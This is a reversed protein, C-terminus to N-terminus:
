IFEIGLNEIHKLCQQYFDKSFSELESYNSILQKYDNNSHEIDIKTGIVNEKKYNTLNKEVYNPIEDYSLKTYKLNKAILYKELFNSLAVEFIYFKIRPSDYDIDLVQLGRKYYKEVMEKGTNGNIATFIFNGTQMAYEMSALTETIDRYIYYYDTYEHLRLIESVNTIVTPRYTSLNDIYRSATDARHKNVVWDENSDYKTILSRSFLKIVYSVDEKFIRKTTNTLNEVFIKNIVHNKNAKERHVRLLQNPTFFSYNKVDYIEFYNQIKYHEQLAFTLYTSRTRPTGIVCINQM